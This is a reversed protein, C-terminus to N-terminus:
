TYEIEILRGPLYVPEGNERYFYIKQVQPTTKGSIYRGTNDYIGVVIKNIDVLDRPLVRRDKKKDRRVTLYYHRTVLPSEQHEYCSSLYDINLVEGSNKHIEVFDVRLESNKTQIVLSMEYFM